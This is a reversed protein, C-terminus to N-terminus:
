RSPGLTHIKNREAECADRGPTRGDSQGNNQTEHACQRSGLSLFGGRSLVALGGRRYSSERIRTFPTSSFLPLSPPLDTFGYIQLRRGNCGGM